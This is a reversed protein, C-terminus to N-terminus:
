LVNLMLDQSVCIEQNTSDRGEAFIKYSGATQFSFYSKFLGESFVPTLLVPTGGNQSNYWNVTKIQASNVPASATFNLTALTPRSISSSATSINCMQSFRVRVLNSECLVSGGGRQVQVKFSYNGPQTQTNYTMTYSVDGVSSGLDTLNTGDVNSRSGLWYIQENSTLARSLSVSWVVQGDRKVQSKSAALSCSLTEIPQTTTTTTSTQGQYSSQDLYDYTRPRSCNQFMLLPVFVVSVTAVIFFWRQFKM